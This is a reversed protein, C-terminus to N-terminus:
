IQPGGARDSNFYLTRGDPSWAAETDIAADTTLQRLVQTGLDLTFIDLNGQEGSLTLALLGFTGLTFIFRRRLQM